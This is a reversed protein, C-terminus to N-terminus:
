YLVISKILTLPARVWLRLFISMSMGLFLNITIVPSDPEPL